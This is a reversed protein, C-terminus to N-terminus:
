SFERAYQLLKAALDGQQALAASWDRAHSAWDPVDTNRRLDHCAEWATGIDGQGNWAHFLNRIALQLPGATAHTYCDIFADLKPWHANGAQPYIQWVTPRGAWQARVFSDEGRVFNLDCSWLLKDYDAQTMLRIVEVVLNGRKFSAGAIPQQGIFNAVAASAVGEPVLCLVPTAGQAWVEFLRAVPAAPYCFLSIILCPDFNRLPQAIHREDFFARRADGHQFRDRRELLSNERLLGGTGTAFGPFFFHCTLPLSAHPSTRAHFGQVWQEASLYELNIWVPKPRSAVMAQLFALPIGCGFAEIIIQAREIHARDIAADWALIRVGDITQTALGPNVLPAIKRFVGLADVVLQVQLPYESALQRALRWCVGIDGYHDIVRCFIIVIPMQSVNHM